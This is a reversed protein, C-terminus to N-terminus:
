RMEREEAEPDILLIVGQSTDQVEQLKYHTGHLEVYVEGDDKCLELDDLLDSLYM